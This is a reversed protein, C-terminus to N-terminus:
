YEKIPVFKFMFEQSNLEMLLPGQIILGVRESVVGLLIM